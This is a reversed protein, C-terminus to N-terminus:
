FLLVSSHAVRHMVRYAHSLNKSEMLNWFPNRCYLIHVYKFRTGDYGPNMCFPQTGQMRLELPHAVHGGMFSSTRLLTHGYFGPPNPPLPIM